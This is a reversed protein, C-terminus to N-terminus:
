SDAPDGAAEAQAQQERWRALLKKVDEPNCLLPATGGAPSSPKSRLLREGKRVKTWRHATARHVGFLTAVEVTTPWYGPDCGLRREIEARDRALEADAQDDVM